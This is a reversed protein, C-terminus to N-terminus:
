KSLYSKFFDKLHQSALSSQQVAANMKKLRAKSLNDLVGREDDLDWDGMELLDPEQYILQGLELVYMDINAPIDPSGIAKTKFFMNFLEKIGVFSATARPSLKLKSKPARQSLADYAQLVGNGLYKEFKKIKKASNFLAFRTAEVQRWTGSYGQEDLWERNHIIWLAAAAAVQPTASSTGGGTMTFPKSENTTGWAVNPTYAALATKMKTAPGFNGQMWEGGESKPRPWSNADFVYPEHNAAIGCAAIVRDFRAPYILSKPLLKSGGRIWSNGAATVITVGAEYAKNIIRAWARSPLGAMSMTIVECKQDIAYQVAKVFAESKIIAVTDNIRIPIVEAFPIAGFYGEFKGDSEEKTLKGGALFALTANGHGEQEALSGRTYDIGPNDKEKGVFSKGLKWLLKEPRSPHGMQYGTDIHGIRIKKRKKQSWVFDRAKKLQSFEAELHWAFESKVNRPHPWNVLYKGRKAKFSKVEKKNHDYIDSQVAPEIFDPVTGDASLTDYMKYAADWPSSELDKAITVEETGPVASKKRSIAAGSKKLAVKKQKTAALSKSRKFEIYLTQDEM